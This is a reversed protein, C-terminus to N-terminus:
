AASWARTGNKAIPPISAESTAATRAVPLHSVALRRLYDVKRGAKVGVVDGLRLRSPSDPLTQHM